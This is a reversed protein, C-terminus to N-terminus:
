AATRELARLPGLLFRTYKRVGYPTLAFLEAIEERPRGNLIARGLAYWWAWDKNPRQSALAMNLLTASQGLLGEAVHIPALMALARLGEQPWFQINADPNHFFSLVSLLSDRIEPSVTEKLLQARQAAREINAAYREFFDAASFDADGLEDLTERALPVRDLTTLRAVVKV